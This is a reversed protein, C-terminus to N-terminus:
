LRLLDSLMAIPALHMTADIFQRLAPIGKKLDETSQRDQQSYSFNATNQRNMPVNCLFKAKSPPFPFLHFNFVFVIAFKFPLTVDIAV